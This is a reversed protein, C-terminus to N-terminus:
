GKCPGIENACASAILSEACRIFSLRYTKAHLEVARGRAISMPRIRVVVSRCLHFSMPEILQNSLFARDLVSGKLDFEEVRAHLGKGECKALGRPELDDLLAFAIRPARRAFKLFGPCNYFPIASFKTATLPNSGGVKPNHPFLLRASRVPLASKSWSFGLVGWTTAAEKRMGLTRCLLMSWFNCACMILILM